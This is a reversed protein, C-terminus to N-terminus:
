NYNSTLCKLRIITLINNIPSYDTLKCSESFIDLIKIDEKFIIEEVISGNNKIKIGSTLYILIFLEEGVEIEKQINPIKKGIISGIEKNDIEFKLKQEDGFDEFLIKLKRM